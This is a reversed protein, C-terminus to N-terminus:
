GSIFFCCVPFQLSNFSDLVDVMNETFIVKDDDYVNFVQADEIGHYVSYPFALSYGCGLCNNTRFESNKLTQFCSQFYLIVGSFIQFPFSRSSDIDKKAPM